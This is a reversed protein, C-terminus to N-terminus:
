RVPTDTPPLGAGREIADLAVALAAAFHQHARARGDDAPNPVYIAPTTNIEWIQVRGDRVAFDIRGYGINALRCIERLTAAHPNSELYALEEALQEPGALDASKVLWNRSFFLHRPVIHGGVVFAGYKRFIGAEDRTDCFEIALIDDAASVGATARLYDDSGHILPPQQWETGSAPRVFVPFREPMSGETVRHVAFSNIGRASLMDLLEFRGLSSLPDNLVHDPGYRAALESYLQAVLQRTRSPPNRSGLSRGLCTFIYIGRPLAAPLKSFIQEYSLITIRGALPKGWTALFAGMAGAMRAATLYYIM